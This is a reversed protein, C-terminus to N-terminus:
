PQPGDLSRIVRAPNGVAICRAPVDESVVSGAGVVAGDGIHVGKLIIARAGIFVDDGVVVRDTPLPAPTPLHRRPVVEVAHFDTDCIMVDAGLLCRRGIRVSHRACVTTGSMGTDAGIVIEASESLTRLIVPRAVGLATKRSVSTLVVGDGVEVRSGAVADVIPM